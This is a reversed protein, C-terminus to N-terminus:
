QSFYQAKLGDQLSEVDIERTENLTLTRSLGDRAVGMLVRVSSIPRSGPGKGSVRIARVAGAFFDKSRYITSGWPARQLLRSTGFPSVVWVKLDDSVDTSETFEVAVASYHVGSRYRVFMLIPFLVVIAVLLRLYRGLAIKALFKVIM